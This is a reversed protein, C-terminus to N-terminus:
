RCGNEQGQVAVPQMSSKFKCGSKKLASTNVLMEYVVGEMCGRYIDAVTTDTTLGLIAGKSGTDMYPTAAGAFHPLILLNSPNEEGRETAYKKELYENVSLDRDAAARKEDKALNDM